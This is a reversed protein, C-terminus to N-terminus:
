TTSITPTHQLYQQQISTINNTQKHLKDTPSITSTTTGPLIYIQNLTQSHQSKTMSTIIQKHHIQRQEFGQQWINMQYKTIKTQSTPQQNHSYHM